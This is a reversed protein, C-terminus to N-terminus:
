MLIIRQNKNEQGIIADRMETTLQWDCSQDVMLIM